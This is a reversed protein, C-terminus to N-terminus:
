GEVQRAAGEALRQLSMPKCTACVCEKNLIVMEEPPMARGCIACCSEIKQAAWGSQMQYISSVLRLAVLCLILGTVESVVSVVASAMLDAPSDARFALRFSANGVMNNVIWCTWLTSLLGPLSVTQWAGPNKSAQWIEKMAQYPKWLNFIPAFYWGVSSAPSFRMGRAGLWEANKRARYIWMLFVV